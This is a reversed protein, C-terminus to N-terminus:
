GTARHLARGTDDGYSGRLLPAAEANLFSVVRPRIVVGGAKRYLQEYHARAARLMEIDAGSVRRPGGRSVDTD